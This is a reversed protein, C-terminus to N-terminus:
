AESVTIKVGSFVPPLSYPYEILVPPNVMIPTITMKGGGVVGNHENIYNKIAKEVEELTLNYTYSVEPKM